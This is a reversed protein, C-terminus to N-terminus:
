KLISYNFFSSSPSYIVECCLQVEPLTLNEWHKSNLAFLLSFCLM